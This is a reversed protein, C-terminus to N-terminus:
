VISGDAKGAKRTRRAVFSLLSLGALLMAYTEPEPVPSVQYISGAAVPLADKYGAIGNVEGPTGAGANGVTMGHIVIERLSLPLLQATTFTSGFDSQKSLDFTESYNIQGYPATSFGSATNGPPNTLQLLIPGYTKLGEALEIYGDKDTDQAITPVTSALPMNNSDLLGHIHAMHMEDPELGTALMNVTLITGDLTLNAIGHVGSNNLPNLIASFSTLAFASTPLTFASVLLLSAIKKKM